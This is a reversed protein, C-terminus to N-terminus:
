QWCKHYINLVEVWMSEFNCTCINLSLRGSRWADLHFYVGLVCTEYGLSGWTWRYQAVFLKWTLCICCSIELHVQYTQASVFPLVIYRSYVRSSALNVRTERHDVTEPNFTSQWIFAAMIIKIFNLGLVCGAHGFNRWNQIVFWQSGYYIPFCALFFCLIGSSLFVKRFTIGQVQLPINSNQEM